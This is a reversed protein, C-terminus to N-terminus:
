EIEVVVGGPGANVVVVGSEMVVRGVSAHIHGCVVLRPRLSDIAERVAVSGLSTGSSSRDLIGKPPSHSVLVARTPCRALMSRAQEESFDYSWAGFPTVPVGGPLGFFPIGPVRGGGTEPPTALFSGPHTGIEVSEGHLVLSSEWGACATRLEETSENNGAILVAPKNVTKLIDVTRQVDRRANGFDGAGVLVDVDKSLRTLKVAALENAHLDSFALIRLM